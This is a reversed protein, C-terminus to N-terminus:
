CRWAAHRQQMPALSRSAAESVVVAKGENAARLAARLNAVTQAPLEGLNAIVRHGTSGNKKSYNQVIRAYEYTRDGHRVSNAKVQM